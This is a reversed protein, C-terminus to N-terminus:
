TNRREKKMKRRKSVLWEVVVGITDIKSKSMPKGCILDSRVRLGVRDGHRDVCDVVKHLFRFRQFLLKSSLDVLLSPLSLLM